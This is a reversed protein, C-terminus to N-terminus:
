RMSILEYVDTEERLFLAELQTLDEGSLRGVVAKLKVLSLTIDYRAKNFDRRTSEVQQQAQLRDLDTKVGAEIGVM